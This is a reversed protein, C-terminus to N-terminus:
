TIHTKCYFFYNFFFFILGSRERTQSTQCHAPSGPELETLPSQAMPQGEWCIACAAKPIPVCCLPSELVSSTYLKCTLLDGGGLSCHFKINM